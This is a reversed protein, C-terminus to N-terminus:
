EPRDMNYMKGINRVISYTDLFRQTIIHPPHGPGDRPGGGEHEACGGRVCRRRAGGLLQVRCNLPSPQASTIGHQPWAGAAGRVSLRDGKDTRQTSAHVVRTVVIKPSNLKNNLTLQCYDGRQTGNTLSCARPQQLTAPISRCWDFIQRLM